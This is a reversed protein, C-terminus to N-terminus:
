QFPAVFNEDFEMITLSPRARIARGRSLWPERLFPGALIADEPYLFMKERPLYTMILKLKRYFDPEPTVYICYRQPGIGIIEKIMALRFSGLLYPISFLEICTMSNSPNSRWPGILGGRLNGFHTDRAHSEFRSRSDRDGSLIQSMEYSAQSQNPNAM